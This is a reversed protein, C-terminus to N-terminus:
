PVVRGILDVHFGEEDHVTEYQDSEFRCLELWSILSVPSGSLAVDLTLVGGSAAVIKAYAITGDAQVIQVHQRQSPWWASFDGSATDITLSAGVHSMYVLDDRWTPLWFKKQRGVATAMFLKFWQWTSQDGAVIRIARYWDAKDATGLAYPIGGHDIIQTLAHLGDRNSSSTDIPLHWVPRSTGDGSYTTLAAGTGVDGTASAGALATAPFEDGAAITDTGVYSGTLKVLSSNALADALNQITTVGPRYRFTASYGNEILQGTASYGVDGDLTFTITNGILGFLRSTISVNDLGASVTIPGLALSALTPAFDLPWAGRAAINWLEVNVAYRPFDQQPELFVARAPMIEATVPANPSVDLIISSATKNQVVGEVAQRKNSADRWAVVVRQGPKAWDILALIGSPVPVMTGSSAAALPIAEHPVGLLFLSGIAAYRALLARTDRPDNGGLYAVGSYSERDIDNRSIRQESGARFKIVDTSWSHRVRYGNELDLVLTAVGGDGYGAFSDSGDMGLLDLVMDLIADGVLDPM